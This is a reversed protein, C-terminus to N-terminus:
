RQRSGGEEYPTNRVFRLSWMFQDTDGDDAEDFSYTLPVGGVTRTVSEGARPNDIGEPTRPVTVILVRARYLGGTPSELMQFSEDCVAAVERPPQGAPNYTITEAFENANAFTGAADAAQLQQFTLGM